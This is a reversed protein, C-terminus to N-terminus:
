KAPVQVPIAAPGFRRDMDDMLAQVRERIGESGIEELEEQSVLEGYTVRVKRPRPFSAGKPFAKGSGHIATPLIPVKAQRAILEFGRKFDQLHGDRSRTGEPFVIMPRGGTLIEVAIRISSRDSTGREVPFCYVKSFWWGLLGKFLSARAMFGIARYLGFGVINPDVYSQHNCVVLYAQKKPLKRRGYFRTRHWGYAYLGSAFWGFFYYLNL